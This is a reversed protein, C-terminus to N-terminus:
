SQSGLLPSLREEVIRWTERPTHHSTDIVLDCCSGDPYFGYIKEYRERDIRDRSLMERSAIRYSWDRQRAREMLVREDRVELWVGLVRARPQVRRAVVRAICAMRGTAVVNENELVTEILLGDAEIDLRSLEERSAKEYFKELSMGLAEARERFVDGTNFVLPDLGHKKLHWSAMNALTTKGSYSMGGILLKLGDGRSYRERLEELTYGLAYLFRDMKQDCDM